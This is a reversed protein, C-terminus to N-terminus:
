VASSCSVKTSVGAASICDTATCTQGSPVAVCVKTGEGKCGEEKYSTTCIKQEESAATSAGPAATSGSDSGCTTKGSAGGAGVCDVAVCSGVDVCVKGTEAGTCDNSSYTYACQQEAAAVAALAVVALILCKM